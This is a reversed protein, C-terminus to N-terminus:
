VVPKVEPPPVEERLKQAAKQLGPFYIVRQGTEDTAVVTDPYKGSNILKEQRRRDVDKNDSKDKLNCAIIKGTM